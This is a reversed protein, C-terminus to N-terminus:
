WKNQVNKVRQDTDICKGIMQLYGNSGRATGASVGAKRVEKNKMKEDRIEVLYGPPCVVHCFKNAWRSKRGDPLGPPRYKISYDFISALDETFLASTARRV